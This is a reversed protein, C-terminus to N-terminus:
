DPIAIVTIKAKDLWKRMLEPNWFKEDPPGTPDPWEVPWATGYRMRMEEGKTWPGPGLKTVTTRGNVATIEYRVMGGRCSVDQIYYAGKKPSPRGPFLVKWRKDGIWDFDKRAKEFGVKKVLRNFARTEKSQEKASIARKLVMVRLKM